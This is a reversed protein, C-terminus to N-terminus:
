RSVNSTRQAAQGTFAQTANTRTTGLESGVQAKQEALAKRTRQRLKRGGKLNNIFANLGLGKNENLNDPSDLLTASINLDDELIDNNSLYNLSESIVALTDGDISALEPRVLGLSVLLQKVEGIIVEQNTAFTLDSQAVIIGRPDLAVGRRRKNEISLDVVEEDIVRIQYIGFLATDPDTKSDYDIVYTALQDLLGNLDKRTGQLESLIDSDKFADCVQLNLLLIDLRRLLENANVLIYRIFSTAVSLLANISRLVRVIGDSEDKAANKADQIKTQAGATLFFSPIPLIGFFYLIFKFVKVLIIAFKIINQGSEIVKQVKNAQRIFTRIGDNIEKLTPIIRTVDVFESLRQIQSRIDVGVFNGALNVASKFNLNQITTCVARLRGIKNQLALLEPTSIQNFDSYKNVDGLFDNVFNLNSGLGPVEQLVIADQSTFLSGTTNTNFSFVEGIGKLLYYMNYKSVPTGGEAPANSQSVAQQPPVANPGVGLYSGIFVNPYATYKDIATVVLGAQDQLTYFAVQTPTWTSREPRPQRKININDYAYAVVNCLDVSNLADLASFLGTQILKEGIKPRAATTPVEKYEIQKSPQSRTTVITDQINDPPTDNPGLVSQFQYTAVNPTAAVGPPLGTSAFGAGTQVDARASPLPVTRTTYNRPERAPKNGYRAESRRRDNQPVPNGWLVKDVGIQLDGLGKSAIRVIREIGRALKNRAM